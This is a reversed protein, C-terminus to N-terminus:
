TEDEDDHHPRMRENIMDELEIQESLAPGTQTM